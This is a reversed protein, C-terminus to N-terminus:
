ERLRERAKILIYGLFQSLTFPLTLSGESLYQPEEIRTTTPPDGSIKIMEVSWDVAHGKARFGEM